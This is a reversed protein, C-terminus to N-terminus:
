RTTGQPGRVKPSGLIGLSGPIRSNAVLNDLSLRIANEVVHTSGLVEWRGEGLKPAGIHQTDWM